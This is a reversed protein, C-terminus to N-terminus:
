SAEPPRDRGRFDQKSAREAVIAIFASFIGLGFVIYLVTFLKTLPQTPALDGYGVTTLTVVTFYLADIYTWGEYRAYFLTGFLILGVVTVLIARFQPERLGSRLIRVFRIFVYILAM